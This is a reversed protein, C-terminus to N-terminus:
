LESVVGEYEFTIPLNNPVCSKLTLGKNPNQPLAQCCSACNKWNTSQPSMDKYSTVLHGDDRAGSGDGTRWWGHSLPEEREGGLWAEGWGPGTGWLREYRCSYEGLFRRNDIKKSYQFRYIQWNFVKKIIELFIEKLTIYLHLKLKLAGFSFICNLYLLNRNRRPNIWIPDTSHTFSLWM